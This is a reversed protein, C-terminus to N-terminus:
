IKYHEAKKSSISIKCQTSPRLKALEALLAAIILVKLTYFILIELTWLCWEYIMADTASM